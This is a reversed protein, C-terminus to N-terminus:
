NHPWKLRWDKIEKRGPLHWFFQEHHCHMKVSLTSWYGVTKVHVKTLVADASVECYVHIMEHICIRENM